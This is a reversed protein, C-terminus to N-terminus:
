EALEWKADYLNVKEGSIGTKYAGNETKLNTPNHFESTVSGTAKVMKGTVDGPWEDIGIIYFVEGNNTEIIAGLKANLAKGEITIKKTEMSHQNPYLQYRTLINENWPQRHFKGKKLILLYKEDASINGAEKTPLERDILRRFIGIDLNRDNNFDAIWANQWEKYAGDVKKYSAIVKNFTINGKEDSCIFYICRLKKSYLLYATYKKTEDVFYRIIPFFDRESKLLANPFKIPFNRYTMQTHVHLTDFYTIPFKSDIKESFHQCKSNTFTFLSIFILISKM